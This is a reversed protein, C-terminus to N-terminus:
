FSAEVTIKTDQNTVVIPTSTSTYQAGDSRVSQLHPLDIECDSSNRSKEMGLLATREVVYDTKVRGSWFDRPWLRVVTGFTVMGSEQRKEMSPFDITCHKIFPISTVNVMEVPEQHTGIQEYRDVLEGGKFVSITYKVKIPMCQSGNWQQTPPCFCEKGSWYRGGTCESEGAIATAATMSLALLAFMHKM